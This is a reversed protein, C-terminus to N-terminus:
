EINVPHNPAAQIWEPPPEIIWKAAKAMRNKIGRTKDGLVEAHHPNEPLPKRIVSLGLQSVFDAPLGALSTRPHGRLATCPPQGDNVDVSM